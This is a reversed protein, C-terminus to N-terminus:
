KRGRPYWWKVVLFTLTIGRQGSLCSYKRVYFSYFGVLRRFAAPEDDLGKAATNGKEKRPCLYFVLRFCGAGGRASLEGTLLRITASAKRRLTERRKEQKKKEFYLFEKKERPYLQFFYFQFFLEGVCICLFFFLDFLLLYRLARTARRTHVASETDTDTTKSLDVVASLIARRTRFM